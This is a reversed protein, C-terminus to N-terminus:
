FGQASYYRGVREYTAIADAYAEMKLQLDGIKLLTRADNPDEQIIRQYELVAKDYRKKEVLKQAAQIVKDRDIPM